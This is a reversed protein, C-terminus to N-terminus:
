SRWLQNARGGSFPAKRESRVQQFKGNGTEVVRVVDGIDAAVSQSPSTTEGAPIYRAAWAAIVHAAFRGDERGTLLHDAGDLSVFSKPHKAAAFIAGANEIGVQADTPAHLVL